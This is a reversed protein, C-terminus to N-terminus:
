EFGWRERHAKLHTLSPHYKKDEPLLIKQHVFEDLRWTAIASEKLDALLVRYDNDISILGRDFARHLTPTLALGNTLSDQQGESHPVIHAADLLPFKGQYEVKTRSIACTHRYNQLVSKAFLQNRTARTFTSKSSGKRYETLVLEAADLQITYPNSYEEEPKLDGFYQELLVARLAQRNAESATLVEWLDRAIEYHLLAEKITRLSTPSNGRMNIRQGPKLHLKCFGDTQLHYIPYHLNPKRAGVHKIWRDLFAGELADSHPFKRSSIEGAAVLDILALLLTAKNPAPKGNVTAVKLKAFAALYKELSM